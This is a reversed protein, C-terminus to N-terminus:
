KVKIKGAMYMIMKSEKNEIAVIFDSITNDDVAKAFSRIYDFGEFEKEKGIDAEKLLSSFADLEKHLSQCTQQSAESYEIVTIRTVGKMFEKGFQKNFMMKVMSLGFGKTVTMCDVGKVDEYKKELEDVKVEVASPSQAYTSGMSLMFSVVLFVIKQVVSNM